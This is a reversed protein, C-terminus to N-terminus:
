SYKLLKQFGSGFKSGKFRQFIDKFFRMKAQRSLLGDLIAPFFTQLRKKEKEQLQAESISYREFFNKLFFANQKM